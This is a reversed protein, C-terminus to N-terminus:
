GNFVNVKISKGEFPDSRLSALEDVKNSCILMLTFHILNNHAVVDDSAALLLRAQLIKIALGAQKSTQKSSQVCMVLSQKSSSYLM